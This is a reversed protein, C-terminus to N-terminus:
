LFMIIIDSIQPIRKTFRQKHLNVVCKQFSKSPHSFLINIIVVICAYTPMSNRDREKNKDIM